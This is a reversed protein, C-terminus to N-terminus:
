FDPTETTEPTPELSVKRTRKPKDDEAAPKDKEYLESARLEVLEWKSTGDPQPVEVLHKNM